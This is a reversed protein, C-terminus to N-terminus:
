AANTASGALAQARHLVKGDVITLSSQRTAIVADLLGAFDVGPDGDLKFAAIDALCGPELRGLEGQWGLPGLGSSTLAAFVHEAAVQPYRQRLQAAEALPSLAANSALSDTGLAVPIGAALYDAVPHESHGFYAHTSPCFVVTTRHERLLERDGAQPYNAHVAYTPGELIGERAFYAVPSLGTGRWSADWAEARRLLEEIEVSRGDRVFALEAAIEALHTSLPVGGDNAANRCARAMEISVTYPAHPAYGGASQARVWAPDPSHNNFQFYERLPFYRIGTAHITDFDLDTTYHDVVTTCGGSLLQGISRQPFPTAGNGRGAKMDRIQQLWDMFPMGADLQGATFELELHAHANVLGPTLVALGLDIDPRMAGARYGSSVSLIRQGDTELRVDERLEGPALLAYKARLILTLEGSSPM